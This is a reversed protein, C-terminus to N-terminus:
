FFFFSKSKKKEEGEDSKEGNEKPDEDSKYQKEIQAEPANAKEALKTSFHKIKSQYYKPIDTGRSGSFRFYIEEKYTTFCKVYLDTNTKNDNLCAELYLDGMSYFLNRNLYNEGVGLYYYVYSKQEPNLNSRYLNKSFYGTLILLDVITQNNALELSVNKEAYTILEKTYERSGEKLKDKFDEWYKLRKIYDDIAVDKVPSKKKLNELFNQTGEIDLNFKLGMIMLMSLAEHFKSNGFYLRNVNAVGKSNLDKIQNIQNSVVSTYTDYSKDFKRTILFLKGLLLKNHIQKEEIKVNSFNKSEPLQSHCNICLSTLNNIKLRTYPYDESNLGMISEEIQEQFTQKPISFQGFNLNNLHHSRFTNFIKELNRKAERRNKENHFSLEDNSHTLVEKMLNFVKRMGQKTGAYTNLGVLTILVLLSVRKMLM